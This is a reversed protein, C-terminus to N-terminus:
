FGCLVIQYLRHMNKRVEGNCKAEEIHTLLAHINDLASTRKDVCNDLVHKKRLCSRAQVAYFETSTCNFLVVFATDTVVTNKLCEGVVFNLKFM